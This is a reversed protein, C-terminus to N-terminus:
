VRWQRLDVCRWARNSPVDADMCLLHNVFDGIHVDGRSLVEDIRQLIKLFPSSDIPGSRKVPRAMQGSRDKADTAATRSAAADTSAGAQNVIYTDPHLGEEIALRRLARKKGEDMEPGVASAPAAEAKVADPTPAPAAAPPAITLEM